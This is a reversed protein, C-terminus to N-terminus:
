NYASTRLGLLSLSLGTRHSLRPFWVHADRGRGVGARADANPLCCLGRQQTACRQLRKCQKGMEKGRKMEREPCWVPPARVLYVCLFLPLSPSTHTHTHTQTYTHAHTQTHVLTPTTMFQFGQSAPMQRSSTPSRGTARRGHFPAAGPCSSCFVSDTGPVSTCVSWGQAQHASAASTLAEMGDLVRGADILPHRGGDAKPESSSPLLVALQWNPM